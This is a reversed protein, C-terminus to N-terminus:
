CKGNSICVLMCVLRGGLRVHKSSAELATLHRVKRQQNHVLAEGREPSPPPAAPTITFALLECVTPSAANHQQNHM